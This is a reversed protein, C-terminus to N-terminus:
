RHEHREGGGHEQRERGENGRREHREPKRYERRGVKEGIEPVVYYFFQSLPDAYPQSYYCQYYYPDCYGPPPPPPQGFAPATAFGGYGQWGLGLTLALGISLMFKKM